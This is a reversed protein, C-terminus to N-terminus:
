AVPSWRDLRAVLQEVAAPEDACAQRARAEVEAWDRATWRDPYRDRQDPTMAAWSPGLLELLENDTLRDLLGAQPDPRRWRRARRVIRGLVGGVIDGIRQPSQTNVRRHVSPLKTM